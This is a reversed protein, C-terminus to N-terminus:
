RTSNWFRETITKNIIFSNFKIQFSISWNPIKIIMPKSCSQSNPITHKIVKRFSSKHTQFILTSVRFNSRLNDFFADFFVLAIEVTFFSLKLFDDSFLIVKTFTTAFSGLQQELNKKIKVFDWFSPALAGLFSYIKVKTM